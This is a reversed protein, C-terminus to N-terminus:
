NSVVPSARLHARDDIQTLLFTALDVRALRPGTGGGVVGLITLTM